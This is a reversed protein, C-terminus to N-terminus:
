LEADHLQSEAVLKRFEGGSPAVIRDCKLPLVPCFRRAFWFANKLSPVVDAMGKLHCVGLSKKKGLEMEEIIFTM